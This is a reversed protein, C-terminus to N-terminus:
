VRGQHKLSCLHLHIKPIFLSPFFLKDRHQLSPQILFSKIGFRLEDFPVSIALFLTVDIANQCLKLFSVAVHGISLSRWVSTASLKWLIQCSYPESRKTLPTIAM